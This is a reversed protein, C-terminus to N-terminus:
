LKLTQSISSNTNTVEALRQAAATASLQSKQVELLEDVVGDDRGQLLVHLHPAAVDLLLIQDAGDTIVAEIESDPLFFESRQCRETSIWKLTM